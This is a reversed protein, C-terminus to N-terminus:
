MAICINATYSSPVRLRLVFISMLEGYEEDRHVEKIVDEEDYEETVPASRKSRGRGAGSSSSFFRVYKNM